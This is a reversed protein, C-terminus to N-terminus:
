GGVGRPTLGFLYCNSLSKIVIVGGCSAGSEGVIGGLITMGTEYIVLTKRRCIRANDQYNYNHLAM